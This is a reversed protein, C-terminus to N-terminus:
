VTKTLTPVANDDLQGNWNRGWVSFQLRRLTFNFNWKLNSNPISQLKNYFIIQSRTNHLIDTFIKFYKPKMRSRIHIMSHDKMRLQSMQDAIIMVSWHIRLNLANHIIAYNNAQSWWEPAAATTSSDYWSTTILLQIVVTSITVTVVDSHNTNNQLNTKDTEGPLKSHFISKM